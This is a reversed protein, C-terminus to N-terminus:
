SKRRLLAYAGGAAVAAVGALLPWAAGAFPAPSDTAAEFGSMTVATPTCAALLQGATATTPQNAPNVLATSITFNPEQTILVVNYPGTLPAGGPATLNLLVLEVNPGTVAPVSPASTCSGTVVYYQSVGPGPTYFGATTTTCAAPAAWGSGATVSAVEVNTLQFALNFAAIGDGGVNQATVAVRQQNPNSPHEYGCGVTISDYTVPAAPAMLALGPSLAMLLLVLSIVVYGRAHRAM